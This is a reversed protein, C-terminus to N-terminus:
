AQCLYGRWYLEQLLALIKETGARDLRLGRLVEGPVAQTRFSEMTKRLLPHADMYYAMEDGLLIIKQRNRDEKIKEEMLMRVNRNLKVPVWLPLSAFARRRFLRILGERFSEADHFRASELIRYGLPYDRDPLEPEMFDMIGEPMNVRVGAICSISYRLLKGDMQQGKQLAARGAASYRNLSEPNNTLVETDELEEPTFCDMLQRFHALSVASMRYPARSQMRNTKLETLLRKTRAPDRQAAASTTQPVAGLLEQMDALFKEYDPNDMPETGYYCPCCDVVAGMLERSILLIERWLRRHEETYLYNGEWPKARLGCFACQVRCGSSLEFAMPYYYVNTHERVAASELRCRNRVVNAYRWLDEAAYRERATLRAVQELVAASRAMYEQLFPNGATGGEQVSGAAICRIGELVKDPDLGIGAARLRAAIEQEAHARFSPDAFYWEMLRKCEAYERPTM